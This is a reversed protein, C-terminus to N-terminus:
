LTKKRPRPALGPDLRRELLAREAAAAREEGNPADRILALLEGEPPWSASFTAHMEWLLAWDTTGSQKAAQVQAIAHNKVADVVDGVLAHPQQLFSAWRERAFAGAPPVANLLRKMEKLSARPVHQRVAAQWTEGLAGSCWSLRIAAESQGEPTLRRLAAACWVAAREGDLREGDRGSNSAFREQIQTMWKLVHRDIDPPSRGNAWAELLTNALEFHGHKVANRVPHSSNSGWEGGSASLPLPNKQLLIACAEAQGRRAAWGLVGHVSCHRTMAVLFRTDNPTDCQDVWCGVLAAPAADLTSALDPALALLAALTDADRHRLAGSLGLVAQEPEVRARRLLAQILPPIQTAVVADCLLEPLTERPGDDGTSPGTALRLCGPEDWPLRAVLDLASSPDARHLAILAQTLPSRALAPWYPPPSAPTLPRDPMM